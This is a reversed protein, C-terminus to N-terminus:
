EPPDPEVQLWPYRAAREWKLRIERHFPVLKANRPTVAVFLVADSGAMNPPFGGGHFVEMDEHYAAREVRYAQHQWFRQASSFVAIIAILAMLHRITLRAPREPPISAMEEAVIQSVARLRGGFSTMREPFTSIRNDM